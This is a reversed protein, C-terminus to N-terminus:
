IMRFLSFRVNFFNEFLIAAIFDFELVEVPCFCLELTLMIDYLDWYNILKKFFVCM